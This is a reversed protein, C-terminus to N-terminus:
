IGSTQTELQQAQMAQYNGISALYKQVAIDTIENQQVEDEETFGDPNTTLLYPEPYKIYELVVNKPVSPSLIEMFTGTGDNKDQYIPDTDIPQNYPDQFIDSDVSRPVIPLTRRTVKGNCEFDYDGSLRTRAFIRDPSVGNIYIRNTDGFDKRRIFPWLDARVLESVEFDKIKLKMWELRSEEYRLQFDAASQHPRRAKDWKVQAAKYIGLNTKKAM